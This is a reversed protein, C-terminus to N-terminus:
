VRSTRERRRLSSRLLALLRIVVWAVATWYALSCIVSHIVGTLSHTHTFLLECIFYSPASV